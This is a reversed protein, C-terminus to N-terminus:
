EVLIKGRGISSGSRFVKYLYIGPLLNERYIKTESDRIWISKIAKGLLDYVRIELPLMAINKVQINFYDSFPNPFIEIESAFYDESISTPCNVVTVNHTLSSSCGNPDMCNLTYNTTVSPSVIICSTTQGGPMWSYGTCGSACLTATTGSCITDPGTIQAGGSSPPIVTVTVSATDSCGTSLCIGVVTYTTPGLPFPCAVPNSINPNSLGMAPTWSYMVNNCLSLMQYSANLTVCNGMCITAASPNVTVSCTSQAVSFTTLLVFTVFFLTIKKM